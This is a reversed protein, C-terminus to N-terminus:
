KQKIPIQRIVEELFRLNEVGEEGTVPPPTDDIISKVFKNILVFHGRHKQQLMKMVSHLSDTLIQTSRRVNEIGYSIPIARGHKSESSYVVAYQYNLDGHLTNKTGYIDIQWLSPWNTSATITGGCKQGKILIQLDDIPLHTYEDFKNSYVSVLEMNGLLKRALYISHPLTNWFVGGPAQHRWHTPDAHEPYDWPPASHRIEVRKVNGLTGKDIINQIKIMAPLFLANHVICLKRHTSKSLALLEEAEMVNAAMPKEILVHCGAKMAEIALVAHSDTDTSTCIDVLDLDAHRLMETYNDYTKSIKFKKASISYNEANRDCIAVVKAQKCNTFAPLHTNQTIFGCGVIGVRVIKQGM